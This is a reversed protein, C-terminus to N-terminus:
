PEERWAHEEEFRAQDADLAARQDDTMQERDDDPILDYPSHGQREWWTSPGATM